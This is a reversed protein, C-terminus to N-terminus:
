VPLGDVTMFEKWSCGDYLDKIVDRSSGDALPASNQWHDCQQLVDPRM